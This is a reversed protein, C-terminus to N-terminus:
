MQTGTTALLRKIEDATFLKPGKRARDIRVVKRSPRKFNQVFRVPRDFVGNNWAFKFVVRIREIVNGLTLPGWKGATKTQLTAFEDPDFDAVLRGKGFQAVVLECSAM